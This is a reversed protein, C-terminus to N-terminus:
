REDIWKRKLDDDSPREHRGADHFDEITEKFPDFANEEFQPRYFASPRKPADALEDKSIVLEDRVYKS